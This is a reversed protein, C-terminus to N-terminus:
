MFSLSSHPQAGDDGEENMGQGLLALISSRGGRPQTGEGGGDGAESGGKVGVEDGQLDQGVGTWMEDLQPKGEDEEGEDEYLPAEQGGAGLEM